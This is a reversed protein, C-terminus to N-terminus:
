FLLMCDEWPSSFDQSEELNFQDTQEEHISVNDELFPRANCSAVKRLNGNYTVWITKGDMVKVEGPGIWKSSKDKDQFIIKDGIAYKVDHYKQLRSGLADKIRKSRDAKRFEERAKEQRNFHLRVSEAETIPGDTTVNGDSIGPIFPSKGFVLQFPSFGHRGVECNRAWVSHSLADEVSITQDDEM